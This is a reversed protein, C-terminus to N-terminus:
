NHVSSINTLSKLAWLFKMAPKCTVYPRGQHHDLFFLMERRQSSFGKNMYIRRSFKYQKSGWCPRRTVHSCVLFVLPSWGSFRDSVRYCKQGFFHGTLSSIYFLIICGLQADTRFIKFLPGKLFSSYHCM